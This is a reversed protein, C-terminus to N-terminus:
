NKVSIISLKKLEYLGSLFLSFDASDMNFRCAWYYSFDAAIPIGSAPPGGFTLVGPSSTGWNSVSWGTTNTVPFGAGTNTIGTNPEVWPTGIAIPSSNQRTETATSKSVYVNWGIAGAPASSPAAVNLVHNASVALSSEVSTTTEGSETAWTSRVYYTAGALSGSSTQTLAGNTAASYGAAPISTGNLYVASVTNPALVPEIFGGFARILQFTTTAGDGDEIAQGTVSNDDADQYLFTDFQGMRSNFFGVLQQFESLAIASRLFNFVLDWKWRPYSQLAIRTEKGSIAQQVQTDFVPSRTVPWGLGSLTPFQTTSM